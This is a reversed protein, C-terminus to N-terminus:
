FRYGLGVSFQFNHTTDSTSSPNIFLIGATAYRIHVITDGADFRIITRASPYFELVGGADLAFNNHGPRCITAFGNRSCSFSSAVEGISMVGPRVKAFVGFYRSGVGAKVGIFGQAKQGVQNNGFHTKPVFSAEADVALHKNFNYGARVGVGNLTEGFGKLNIGTYFVGVEGKYEDAGSQLQAGAVGPVTLILIMGIYLNRRAM